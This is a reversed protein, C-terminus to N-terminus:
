AMEKILFTNNRNSYPISPMNEAAQEWTNYIVPYIHKNGTWISTIVICYM